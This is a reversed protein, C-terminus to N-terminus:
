GGDSQPTRTSRPWEIPARWSLGLELGFNKESFLSDFDGTAQDLFNRNYRNSYTVKASAHIDEHIILARLAGTLEVDHGNHAFYQSFNDYYADDDYRIRQVYFGVRGRSTFVDAGIIQADAGPGIAAGLLQGRNTFGQVVRGHTYFTNSGRFARVPLAAQLHTLEGYLRLWRLAAGAADRHEIVKQFGLTYAQSHDPEKLLDEFDAWHDDRAWEAYAEFGSRPLAWRLYLALMQDDTRGVLPNVRPSRYPQLFFDGANWDDTLTAMYTRAFGLFLGDLGRPQFSLNLGALVRRDNDPDDDFFDSEQLVGWLLEAELRGIYVNAPKSTGVFLHPFGPANNSFLLPNFLSPGWWLNENSVGIAAGYADARVVSQGPDLRAVGGDGPRLPWDIRGNHWPYAFTSLRPNETPPTSFRRNQSTYLAPAIVGSLVGYRFRAGGEIAASFGRGAWLGGNNFSRPYMTNAAVAARLPVDDIIQGPEPAPRYWGAGLADRASCSYPRITVGRHILQSRLPREGILELLRGFDDAVDQAGPRALAPCTTDAQEQAAAPRAAPTAIAGTAAAVAPLLFRTCQVM